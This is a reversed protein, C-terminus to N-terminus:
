EYAVSGASDAAASFEGAPQAPQGQTIRALPIALAAGITQVAQTYAKRRGGIPDAIDYAPLPPIRGRLRAAGAALARAREAPTGATDAPRDATLARARVVHIGDADAPLEAALAAFELLTFTRRVAAPELEAV